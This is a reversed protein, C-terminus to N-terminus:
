DTPVLWFFGHAVRAIAIAVSRGFAVDTKRKRGSVKRFEYFIMSFELVYIMFKLQSIHNQQV